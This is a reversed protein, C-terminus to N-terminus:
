PPLEPCTQLPSPPLGVFHTLDVRGNQISEVFCFELFKLM